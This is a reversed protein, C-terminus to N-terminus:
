SEDFLKQGKKSGRLYAIGLPWDPRWTLGFLFPLVRQGGRQFALDRRVAGNVEHFALRFLLWALQPLSPVSWRLYERAGVWGARNGGDTQWGAWWVDLETRYIQVRFVECEAVIRSGACAALLVACVVLLLMLVGM